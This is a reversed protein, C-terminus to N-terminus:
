SLIICILHFLKLNEWPTILLYIHSNAVNKTARKDKDFKEQFM